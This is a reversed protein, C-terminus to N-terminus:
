SNVDLKVQCVVEPEFQHRNDLQWSLVQGVQGQQVSLILYSYESWALRRDTESPIAPHDPHSHYIGIVQLSRDRAERQVKLLDQPDIWYRDRRADSAIHRAPINLTVLDAAVAESWANPTPRVAVVTKQSDHDDRELHGLLIGCCEEPYAQEAHAQIEQQHAASLILM